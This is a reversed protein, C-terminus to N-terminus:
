EDEIEPKLGTNKSQKGMLKKSLSSRLLKRKIGYFIDSFSTWPM